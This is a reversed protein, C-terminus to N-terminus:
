TEKNESATPIKDFVTSEKVSIRRKIVHIPKVVNSGSLRCEALRQVINKVEIALM